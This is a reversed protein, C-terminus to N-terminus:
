CPGRSFVFWLLAALISTNINVTPAVLFLVGVAKGDCVLHLELSVGLPSRRLGNGQPSKQWSGRALRTSLRM